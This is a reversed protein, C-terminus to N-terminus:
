NENKGGSSILFENIFAALFAACNSDFSHARQLADCVLAIIMDFLRKRKIENVEEMAALALILAKRQKDSLPLRRRCRAYAALRAHVYEASDPVSFSNAVEGIPMRSRLKDAIALFLEDGLYFNVYDNIVTINAFVSVEKDDISLMPNKNQTHLVSKNEAIRCCLDPANPTQILRLPIKVDNVSFDDGMVKCACQCITSFYNHQAM